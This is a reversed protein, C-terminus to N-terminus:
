RKVTIRMEVSGYGKQIYEVTVKRGPKLDSVTLSRGNEDFITTESTLPIRRDDVAIYKVGKLVGLYNIGGSAIVTNRQAQSFGPLSCVLVPLIVLLM